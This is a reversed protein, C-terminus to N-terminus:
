FVISSMSLIVDRFEFERNAKEDSLAVLRWKRYFAGITQSVAFSMAM